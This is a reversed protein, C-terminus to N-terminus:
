WVSVRDKEARLMSAKGVKCQFSEAFPTLNSLPGNVRYKAPAHVDTAVLLQLEEDTYNRRWVQAWSLWFRQAPTLGDVKQTGPNSAQFAAWATQLGALDAINSGLTLRGSVKVPGFASYADYQLELPKTRLAYANADATELWPAIRGGADFTSGITDYGRMLEHGVLAGLAGYNLAADAAPDFLPPQLFGAPLVLQNRAPDYYANVVHAPQPWQWDERPKDVTAMLRKHVYAIIALVNGAYSDRSLTLGEYGPGHEPAGIKLDLADIKALAATRAATGLWPAREIQARQAARVSEVLAVAKAQADAPLYQQAYRQGLAYGLLADVSDRVRRWRPLAEKTGRLTRLYLAEHAQVFPSSLYPALVHAVHFRLYARWQELPVAALAAGAETFFSVHALSVSDVKGLGQAKMFKRWEFAPFTKDLEKVAVLRYSNGPDRLQLLTLSQRALRSEIALVADAEQAPNASGSLTLLREVYAEYAALLTRTDNDERLYYDRDPLGLGGQTIYAIRRSPDKLDDNIGFDFLLPLGRAHLDAIAPALDKPKRIKTIREFLPALPAAGAAEVATENMGSAYLDGLLRTTDDDAASTAAELLARQQAIGRLQLEEFTGWSGHGQPVPNAKLWGGNAYQYFDSCAAVNGDLNRADLGRENTQATAAAAASILLAFQLPRFVRM